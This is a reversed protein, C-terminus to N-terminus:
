IRCDVSHSLRTEIQRRATLGQHASDQRPNAHATGFVPAADNAGLSWGLYVGGALAIM